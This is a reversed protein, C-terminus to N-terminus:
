PLIRLAAIDLAYHMRVMAIAVYMIAIFLYSNM